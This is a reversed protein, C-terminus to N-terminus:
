GLVVVKGSEDTQAVYVVDGEVIRNPSVSEYANPVGDVYVDGGYVYGRQVPPTDKLEKYKKLISVYLNIAKDLSAM